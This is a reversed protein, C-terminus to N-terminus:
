ACYTVIPRKEGRLERVHKEIDTLPISISGPIHGNRYSGEDRTDIVLVDGTALLKKFDSQSIRPVASLEDSQAPAAPPVGWLSLGLALLLAAQMHVDRM